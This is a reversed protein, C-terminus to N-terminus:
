NQGRFFAENDDPHLFSEFRYLIKSIVRTL